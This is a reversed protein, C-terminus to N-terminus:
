RRVGPREDPWSPTFEHGRESALALLQTFPLTGRVWDLAASLVVPDSQVARTLDASAILSWDRESLDSALTM